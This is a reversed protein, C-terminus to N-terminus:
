FLDVDGERFVQYAIRDDGLYAYQHGPVEDRRGHGRAHSRDQRKAGREERKGACVRM